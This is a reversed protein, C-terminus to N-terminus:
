STVSSDMLSKKLPSLTLLPESGPCPPAPPFTPQLSWSKPHWWGGKSGRNTGVKSRIPQPM